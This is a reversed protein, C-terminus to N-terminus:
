ATESGDRGPEPGDSPATQGTLMRGLSATAANIGAVIPGDRHRAVKKAYAREDLERNIQDLAANVAALEAVPDGEPGFYLRRKKGRFHYTHYYYRKENRREWGM